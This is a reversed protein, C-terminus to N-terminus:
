FFGFFCMVESAIFLLMGYRIGLQVINTHHGEFTGESIVDNWWVFMCTTVSVVGIFTISFGLYYGHFLMVFGIMLTSTAISTLLPMANPDVLHFAHRQTLYSKLFM